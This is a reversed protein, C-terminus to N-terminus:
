KMFDRLIKVKRCRKTESTIKDRLLETRIENRVKSQFIAANIASPCSRPRGAGTTYTEPSSTM